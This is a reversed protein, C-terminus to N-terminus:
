VAPEAARSSGSLRVATVAAPVAAAAVVSFALFVWTVSRFVGNPGLGPDAFGTLNAIMGALAAAFAQAILQNTSIFAGSVDREADRAHAMMLHGLHAWAIGIGGGAPVLALAVLPLSRAFLAWTALAMGFAVLAPGAFISRKAWEDVAVASIFACTTWSLAVIASLYGGSIPSYGYAKTAVYPLYIVVTTGGAMLAMALSIAGLANRPRYAGTPLLRFSSGSGDRERRLLIALLAAGAALGFGGSWAGGSISGLAVAMISAGLLLLRRLAEAIQVGGDVDPDRSRSVSYEALLGLMAAVPVDIWFAWRWLGWEALVGGILPGCLAAVGWIGSVLVIARTRLAEPFARRITAYALASLLGGGLGQFFRGALFLGMNGAVACTISGTTFLVLSAHYAGRLGFSRAISAAGAAGWIASVVAVTTTWAFFRLGGIEGVVAPLITAVVRLSQAHIAVGGTLMVSVAAHGDTFLDRWHVPRVRKAAKDGADRRERDRSKGGPVDVV